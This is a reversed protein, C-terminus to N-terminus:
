PLNVTECTQTELDCVADGDCEGCSGGCGDDGCEGFCSPTCDEARVRVVAANSAGEGTEIRVDSALSAAMPMEFLVRQDSWELVTAPQTGVMVEGVADGFDAGYAEVPAGPQAQAPLVRYLIPATTIEARTMVGTESIEFAFRTPEEVLNHAIAPASGAFCTGGSAVTVGPPTAPVEIRGGAPDKELIRVTTPLRGLGFEFMTHPEATLPSPGFGAAGEIDEVEEGDLFAEVHDDGFVRIEFMGLDTALCFLNYMEPDAPADDRLHWDNLVVLNSAADVRVYLDGFRGRLPTVDNWECYDGSGSRRGFDGDITDNCRAAGWPRPGADIPEVGTECGAVCLALALLCIPKRLM